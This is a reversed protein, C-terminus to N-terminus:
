NLSLEFRGSGAPDGRQVAWVPAVSASPTRVAIVEARPQNSGTEHLSRALFLRGRADFTVAEPCNQGIDLRAGLRLDSAFQQVFTQSAACAVAYIAGDSAIATFRVTAPVYVKEQSRGDVSWTELLAGPDTGAPDQSTTLLREGPIIGLVQEHRGRDITWRRRGQEDLSAILNTGRRSKTEVYSTAVIGFRM